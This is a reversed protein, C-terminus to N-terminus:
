LKLAFEKGFDYCKKTENKATGYVKAKPCLKMLAPMAGSYDTEVHNAIM